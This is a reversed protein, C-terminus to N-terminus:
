SIGSPKRRRNPPCVRGRRIVLYGRQILARTLARRVLTARTTGDRWPDGPPGRRALERVLEAQFAAQLAARQEPTVPARAQWLDERSLGEQGGPAPLANAELRAEEIDDLTWAAPRGAAGAIRRARLKISGGGAECSGNYAPTRAPSYLVLIGHRELLARTEHAIFGAGNDLKLVLPAGEEAILAEFALRAEAGSETSSPQALIQAQSSLDRVLALRDFDQEIRCPTQSFDAAWVTGPTTWTLERFSAWGRRRRAYAVRARLEELERRAVLPAQAQLWSIPAGTGERTLLALVERREPPQAHRAPRGRARLGRDLNRWSQSWGLLTPRSLGLLEGAGEVSLGRQQMWRACGVASRRM